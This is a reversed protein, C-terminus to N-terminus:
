PLASVQSTAKHGPLSLNIDGFAQYGGMTNYDGTPNEDGTWMSDENFQVREQATGGFVMGGMRGNGIPLGEGMASKAPQTYWMMLPHSPAMEAAQVATMAPVAVAAAMLALAQRRSIDQEGGLSGQDSGKEM